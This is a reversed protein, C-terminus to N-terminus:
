QLSTGGTSGSRASDLPASAVRAVAEPPLNIVADASRIQPDTQWGGGLAKYIAILDDIILQDSQAVSDQAAYLSRQAELVDLYTDYGEEYRDLALLQSRRFDEASAALAQHRTHEKAYAVLADEVEALANLVTKRYVLLAQEEQANRVEINARIRGGEFIPWTMSPGVQWMRSTGFFFDGPNISELGATGVINFKPFLDATAVGVRATTAAIEREAARIDPRRRLLDSPLAAPIRVAIADPDAIGPIPAMDSLQAQLADPERGLLVGLRHVTQALESEFEPVQAQTTELLSRAQFVDLEPAFGQEFRAQALKLSDNQDRLNAKAIQLRRELARVAVYDRAAEALLSVRVDRANEISAALEAKSAEVGRRIGGFVDVEWSADFGTQYINEDRPLVQPFFGFPSNASYRQRTYSGYTGVSPYLGARSIVLYAREERIRSVAIKEDLNSSLAQAVIQNLLPDDFSQWWTALDTKQEQHEAQKIQQDNGDWHTPLQMAPTKYDPGVMCGVVTVILLAAATMLPLKGVVPLSLAPRQETIPKSAV